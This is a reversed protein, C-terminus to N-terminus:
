GALLKILTTYHTVAADLGDVPVRENLGHAFGDEARMFLSSVGYSPIGAARFHYSDTAGNSMGPVIQIKPFRGQVAKTVAAMVDKSLPSAPASSPNGKVTITASPDALVQALTAKVEDISTGPFIRCNINASARQPLANPAHGAAAQTAVCTTRIQGVFDPRSAIIDAAASDNPDAIYRTMAAGVEGGVEKSAVGLSGRTIENIQNPFKFAELRDLAHSLRYLPNTKTPTSSHGGPDTFTLDFDVYSKEAAQITYLMPKGESSLLGGGGDGNLVLGAEAAVLRKAIERTTLMGTEEDGSFALIITRKPKFGERKLKALTAVIVSVDYKNDESGRGYIYGGEEVPTFPDRTWDAPNAAVVDMHGNLVIPKDKGSGAWTVMLAATEGVPVIEIDSDAFGADKLVSGLYEAYAPVQGMGEVTKFAVSKMLIDKATPPKEQASGPSTLVALGLAVASSLLALKRM